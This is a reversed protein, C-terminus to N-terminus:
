EACRFCQIGEMDIVSRYFEFAEQCSSLRALESEDALQIKYFWGADYPDRNAIAIDIEFTERNNGIVTGTIPSRLPGVWKASEVVALPRGKLVKRGPEKWQIQVLRGSRTQALDIMGIKGVGAGIIDVWTDTDTDYYIDDPFACGAWTQM